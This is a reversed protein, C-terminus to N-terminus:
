LVWSLVRVQVVTLDSTGSVLTDVSEVVQAHLYNLVYLTGLILSSSVHGQSCWGRLTAHRGIEGGPCKMSTAFIRRTKLNVLDEQLIICLFDGIGSDEM